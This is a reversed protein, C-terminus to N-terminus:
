DNQQPNKYINMLFIQRYNEKRRFTVSLMVQFYHKRKEEKFSNISMCEGWPSLSGAGRTNWPGGELPSGTTGRLVRWQAPALNPPPSPARSARVWKVQWVWPWSQCKLAVRYVHMNSLYTNSGLFPLSSTRSVPTYDSGQGNLSESESIQYTSYLNGLLWEHWLDPARSIGSM